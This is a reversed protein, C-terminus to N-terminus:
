SRGEKQRWWKALVRKLNSEENNNQNLHGSRGRVLVNWFNDNLQPSGRAYIPLSVTGGHHPLIVPTM